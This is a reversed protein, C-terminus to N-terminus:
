RNTAYYPDSLMGRIREASWRVLFEGSAFFEPLDALTLEDLYHSAVDADGVWLSALAIRRPGLEELLLEGRETVQVIFRETGHKTVYPTATIWGRAIMIYENSELSNLFFQNRESVLQIYRLYHIQQDTINTLDM